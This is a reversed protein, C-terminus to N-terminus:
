TISTPGSANRLTYSETSDTTLSYVYIIKNNKKFLLLGQERCFIDWFPPGKSKLLTPLDNFKSVSFRSKLGQALGQSQKEGRFLPALEGTGDGQESSGCHM